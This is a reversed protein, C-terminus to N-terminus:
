NRLWPKGKLIHHRKLLASLISLLISQGHIVLVLSLHKDGNVDIHKRM